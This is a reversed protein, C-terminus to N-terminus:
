PNDSQLERNEGLISIYQNYGMQKQIKLNETFLTKKDDYRIPRVKCLEELKRVYKKQRAVIAKNLEGFQINSEESRSM